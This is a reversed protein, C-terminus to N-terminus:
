KYKRKGHKSAQCSSNSVPLLLFLRPQMNLLTVLPWSNYLQRRYLWCEAYPVSIWLCKMVSCTSNGTPLSSLYTMAKHCTLGSLWSKTKRTESTREMPAPVSLSFSSYSWALMFIILYWLSNQYLSDLLFGTTLCCQSWRCMGTKGSKLEFYQCKFSPPPTFCINHMQRWLSNPPLPSQASLHLWCGHHTASYTAALVVMSVTNAKHFFITSLHACTFWMDSFDEENERGRNLPLTHM